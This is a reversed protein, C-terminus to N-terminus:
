VYIRSMLVWNVRWIQRITFDLPPKPGKGRPSVETRGLIVVMKKNEDLMTKECVSKTSKLTHKWCSNGRETHKLISTM